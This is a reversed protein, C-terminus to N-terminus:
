AKDTTNVKQVLKGETRVAGMFMCAQIQTANNKDARENVTISLDETIGVCIGRDAGAVCARVGGSVTLQPVKARSGFLVADFAGIGDLKSGGKSTRGTTVVQTSIVENEGMLDTKEEESIALYM